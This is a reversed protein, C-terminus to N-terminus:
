STGPKAPREKGAQERSGKPDAKAKALNSEARAVDEKALKVAERFRQLDVRAEQM